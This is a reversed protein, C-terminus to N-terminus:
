VPVEEGPVGPRTSGNGGHGAGAAAPVLPQEDLEDAVHLVRDLQAVKESTFERTLGLDGIEALRINQERAISRALEKEERADRRWPLLGALDRGAYFVAGEPRFAMSIAALGPGILEVATLWSPEGLVEYLAPFSALGIVAMFAAIPYRVGQVALLLVLPLGAFLPFSDVRLAGSSLGLMTGAFGAIAGSLAWVLMKQTTINVGITASAAPSDSMAIWRRAFRTRRMLMLGLMFLAFVAALFIVFAKRDGADTSITFGFLQLPEFLTGTASPDLMNPHRVIVKDTFEAFALTALALYLGKLRLAPLAILLGLPACVLMVLLIGIPDGNQGGLHSYLVAGIGAIAFNAFSVQGAWGILPVLSLTIVGLVMFFAGRGLWVSSREGFNPTLFPIWGNAWIAVLSFVVTAGVVAEWPKTLRETRKTLKVKGTELRAQPLFLLAIFLIVAPIAEPAYSWNQDFTLFVGAFAKSLGIILGGAIAWPLSKLQAIAAAAAAVVILLALNEMVMGTEPAILIGALGATMCGLAWSAGSVKSPRAGVLGALPRSDVVARMSIGIRTRYLLWRLGVAIGIAVIVTIIRHWTATVDGIQVGSTDRFFQPLTRGTNPKWITLTIGMFALMLGVTVMLQVVLSADRLRKMILRDLGLGILPAVIGLVIVLSLLTNVGRNVSLEWYLFALFGGIAAHAFNFIGTTAYTVVLGGALIAYIGGLSIGVVLWTTINGVDFSAGGWNSAIIFVTLAAVAIAAFAKPSVKLRM